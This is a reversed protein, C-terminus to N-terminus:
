GARGVPRAPRVPCSDARDFPCRRAAEPVETTARHGAEISRRPRVIEFNLRRGRARWRPAVVTLARMSDCRQSVASATDAAMHAPAMNAAVGVSLVLAGVFIPLLMRRLMLVLGGWQVLAWPTDPYTVIIITALVIAFLLEVAVLNLLYAGIFYDSEGRQLRLGCTPCRERLATYGAFIGRGGCNPCRRLMARVIMAVASPSTKSM